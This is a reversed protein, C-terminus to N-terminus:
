VADDRRAASFYEELAVPGAGIHRVGAREADHREPGVRQVIQARDRLADDAEEMASAAPLTGGGSAFSM